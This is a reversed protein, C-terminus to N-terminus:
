QVKRYWSPKALGDRAAKKGLTTVLLQTDDSIIGDVEWSALRLMSRKDNVTWVLIRRRTQQILQVLRRNVLSKEVIVYNVPLKRWRVLQSPKACIIGVPIAASRAKLELVVEPHFSSVVYDREPRMNRLATLVKAELGGVKLEIDLFGRRRYRALVEELQPIDSLQHCNARSVTVGGIRANHCVLLRGCGSLRLDFEFGDCGHEMALDFARFTNEPAFPSNGAGRHGLLLIHQRM